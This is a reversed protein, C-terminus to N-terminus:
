SFLRLYHPDWGLYSLNRLEPYWVYQIFGILAIGVGFWFLRTIVFLSQLQGDVIIVFYLCAYAAFRFLYLSAEGIQPLSFRFLNIILSVLGATLFAIVPAFLVPRMIKKRRVFSITGALLMITVIMDHIYVTVGPWLTIGGLQGLLLSGLLCTLLIEM